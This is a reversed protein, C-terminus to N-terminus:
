KKPISFLLFRRADEVPVWTFLDYRGKRKYPRYPGEYQGFPGNLDYPTMMLHCHELLRARDIILWESLSEYAIADSIGIGWGKDGNVNQLEFILVNDDFDKNRSTRRRAKVDIRMDDISLDWHEKMNQYADSFHIVNPRGIERLYDIAFRTEASDGESVSKTWAM